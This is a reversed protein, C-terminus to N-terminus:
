SSSNNLTRISMATPYCASSIFREERQARKAINEWVATQFIAGSKLAKNVLRAGQDFIRGAGIANHGVESNGMDDDSPLGVAM